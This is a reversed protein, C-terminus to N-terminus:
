VLIGDERIHVSIIVKVRSRPSRYETRTDRKEEGGCEALIVRKGLRLLGPPPSPAVSGPELADVVRRPAYSREKSFVLVCTRVTKMQESVQLEPGRTRRMMLARCCLVAHVGAAGRNFQKTIELGPPPNPLAAPRFLFPSDSCCMIRM